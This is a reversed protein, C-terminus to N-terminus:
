LVFGAEAIEWRLRLLTHEVTERLKVIHRRLLPAAHNFAGFRHLMQRWRLALLNHAGQSLKTAKWFVTAAKDGAGEAIEALHRWLLTVGDEFFIAKAALKRFLLAVRERPEKGDFRIKRDLV